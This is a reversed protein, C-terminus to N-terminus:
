TDNLLNVNQMSGVTTHCGKMTTIRKHTKGMTEEVTEQMAQKFKNWAQDVITPICERALKNGLSVAYTKRKDSQMRYTWSRIQVQERKRYIPIRLWVHIPTHDSSPSRAEIESKHVIHSAEYQILVYDIVSMGKNATYCTCEGLKAFKNAGNIAIIQMSTMMSLLAMGQPNTVSDKSCRTWMQDLVDTKHEIGPLTMLNVVQQAIRANMDGILRVVGEQAYNNIDAYLDEFSNDKEINSTGYFPSERHPIYCGAIFM